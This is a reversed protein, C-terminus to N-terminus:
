RSGSGISPRVGVTEEEHYLEELISETHEGLRPAPTIPFSPMESYRFPLKPMEWSVGEAQVKTLSDREKVHESNLTQSIEYAPFCPLGKSQTLELIEKGTHAMTWELIIPELADWYQARSPSEQFLENKALDQVGMIEALKEWHADSFTVIAVYGDKCPLYTNPALGAQITPHRPKPTGLYSHHTIDWVMMSAIVEQQSVDVHRGLGDRRRSILALFTASTAVVGAAFDSLYTAPRLPLEVAPDEVHDPLGPSAYALGGMNIAILDDGKCDRYPGTQGFSSISTVILSPFLEHLSSYDLGQRKMSEPSRNEVLIDADGLLEWFTEKDQSQSLDLVMGRKNINLYMFLGSKNSDPKDEPFPGRRRAEDGQPPEVKIVDAGADALLRACYPGSIFDGYDVVRIGSLPFTHDSSTESAAGSETTM